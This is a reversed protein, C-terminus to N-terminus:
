HAGIFNMCYELIIIAWGIFENIEATATQKCQVHPSVGGTSDIPLSCGCTSHLCCHEHANHLLSVHNQAFLIPELFKM